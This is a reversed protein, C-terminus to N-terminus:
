VLSHGTVFVHQCGKCAEAIGALVSDRLTKYVSRFGLHVEGSDAVFGYAEHLAELDHEWDVPTQTGRFAVFATSAAASKGILGFINPENSMHKHFVGPLAALQALADPKAKILATQRYDGPLNPAVGPNQMVAYSAQAVPRAGNLGFTPDFGGRIKDDTLTM